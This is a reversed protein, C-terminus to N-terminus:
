SDLQFTSSLYGVFDELTMEKWFDEYDNAEVMPVELARYAFAQLSWDGVLDYPKADILSYRMEMPMYCISDMMMRYAADDQSLPSDYLCDAKDALSLLLDDVTKPPSDRLVLFLSCASDSLGVEESPM